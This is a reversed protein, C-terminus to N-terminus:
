QGTTLVVRFRADNSLMRAYGAAAEELPLVENMSRIGQLVSFALTDEGDQSSGTLAGEVKRAGIVLDGSAIELAAGDVGVVLLSGTPRLGGFLASISKSNSATALIVTAGGLKQLEQAPDSAASDIYVHAGLRVSLERKGEGRAVAAVRFGMHRAYQVALHGLGGIGQVAVLDGARAQSGRLANFTTLGACLLPAADIAGLEDPVAILGTPLAYMVEAYGGDTTTGTIAQRQCQVFQGRRCEACQGCNGALYGVGVRQGIKWGTVGTGLADIHGVVEHGPVRPFVANPLVGQVALVDTHCIGCAEVRIRVQGAQPEVLPREALALKGPGTAQVVRYSSM